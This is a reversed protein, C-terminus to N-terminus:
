CGSSRHSRQHTQVGVARLVMLSCAQPICTCCQLTTAQKGFVGLGRYLLSASLVQFVRDYLAKALTDRASSAQSLAPNTGHTSLMVVHSLSKVRASSIVISRVQEPSLDSVVQQNNVIVTNHTLAADLAADTTGLQYIM